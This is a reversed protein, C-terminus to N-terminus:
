DVPQQHSTLYPSQVRTQSGRFTICGALSIVCLKHPACISGQTILERTPGIVPFGLVSPLSSPEPKDVTVQNDIHDHPSPSEYPQQSTDAFRSPLRPIRGLIIQGNRRTPIQTHASNHQTCILYSPSPLEPSTFSPSSQAFLPCHLVIPPRHPRAVRSSHSNASTPCVLM